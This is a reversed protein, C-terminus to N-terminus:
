SQSTLRLMHLRHKLASFKTMHHVYIGFAHCEDIPQKERLLVGLAIQLSTAKSTVISTIMNGILLSINSDILKASLSALLNSLTPSMSEEAIKKSIRTTYTNASTKLKKSEQVICEAIHKVEPNDDDTDEVAKLSHPLHGNFVLLSAYGNGSLTVLEPAVRKTVCVVLQRRSVHSRIICKFVGM